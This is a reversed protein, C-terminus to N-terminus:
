IIFGIKYWVHYGYQVNVVASFICKWKVGHANVEERSSQVRIAVPKEICSTSRYGLFAKNLCFFRRSGPNFIAAFKPIIMYIHGHALINQITQPCSFTWSSLFVASLQIHKHLSMYISNLARHLPVGTEGSNKKKKRRSSSNSMLLVLILMRLMEKGWGTKDNLVSGRPLVPRNFYVWFEM